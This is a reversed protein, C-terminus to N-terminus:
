QAMEGPVVILSEVVGYTKVNPEMVPRELDVLYIYNLSGECFRWSSGEDNHCGLILDSTLRLWLKHM